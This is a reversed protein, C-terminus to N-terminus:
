RTKTLRSRRSLPTRHRRRKYNNTLKVLILNYIKHMYSEYVDNKRLKQHITEDTNNKDLYNMDGDTKSPEIGMDAIATM